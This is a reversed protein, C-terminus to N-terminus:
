SLWKSLDLETLTQLKLIEDKYLNVLQNREDQSLSHKTLNKQRVWNAFNGRQVDSFFQRSLWRIPNPNTFLWNTAKFFFHNKQKGTVNYRVSSEPSFTPDVELFQYADKILKDQNTNLEDYLFIKIQDKKFLKFYRELQEYYHGVNTFHWIPEWDAAIRSDELSLAETFDKATERKDRVVHMYASFARDVPNRLIIILKTDPLMAHIRKPAEPRYLYSTSAEGIAKENTVNDFLAQYEDFNTIAKHIPDGPGKTLKSEDDFSFFHPEKVPSMYIEPHQKLYMYLSSTGSKAAGIIMFNPLTM